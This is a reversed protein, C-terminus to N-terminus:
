PMRLAALLYHASLNQHPDLREGLAHVDVGYFLAAAKRLVLDGAPWARPRGLHRALFWEATWPGLGRLGTLLARVEADPLGALAELDIASQALGLVYEAKRGSFGLAVLEGPTAGALRERSPFALAHLGRQGYGEILRNRIARAARLSVQQATISTVLCEFADPVLPPRLGELEPLLSALVPEAAAWALFGPLDFGLGLLREVGPRLEADFPHVEVGGPVPALRLERGAIFRYLAGDHFAYAHDDGSARFRATSLAFDYPEPLALFVRGEEGGRRAAVVLSRSAGARGPV